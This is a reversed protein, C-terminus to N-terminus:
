IFSYIFLYIPKIFINKIEKGINWLFNIKNM